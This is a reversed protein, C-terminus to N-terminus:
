RATSSTIWRPHGLGAQTPGDASWLMQLTCGDHIPLALTRPPGAPPFSGELIENGCRLTYRFASGAPSVYGIDTVFTNAGQPPTWLLTATSDAQLSIRLGHTYGTGRGRGSLWLLSDPHSVIQPVLTIPAYSRSPFASTWENMANRTFFDLSILHRAEFPLLSDAPWAWHCQMNTIVTSDCRFGPRFADPHPVGFTHGLEHAVTGRYTNWNCWWATGGEPKQWSATSTRPCVGALIGGISSDGVVALGGFAGRQPPGPDEESQIGGNESDAGAWAGAGQALILLKFQSSDNWPLGYDAFEKDPLPWWNQFNNAALEAFTHRSRHVLLPDARFSLGGLRDAYWQQVDRVARIQLDLRQPEVPLDAPVYLIPLVRHGPAQAAIPTALLAMLVIIRIVIASWRLGPFQPLM